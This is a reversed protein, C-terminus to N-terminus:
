PMDIVGLVKELMPEDVVLPSAIRFTNTIDRSNVGIPIVEMEVETGDALRNELLPTTLGQMGKDLPVINKSSSKSSCSSGLCSYEKGFKEFWSGKYLDTFSM